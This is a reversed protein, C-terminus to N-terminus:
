WGYAMGIAITIAVYIVLVPLVFGKIVVSILSPKKDVKYMKHMSSMDHYQHTSVGNGEMNNQGYPGSNMRGRIFVVFLWLMVSLFFVFIRSSFIFVFLLTIPDAYEFVAEPVGSYILATKLFESDEFM